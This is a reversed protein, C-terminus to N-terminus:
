TFVKLYLETVKWIWAPYNHSEKAQAKHMKLTTQSILSIKAVLNREKVVSLSLKWIVPLLVAVDFLVDEGRWLCVACSPNLKSKYARM